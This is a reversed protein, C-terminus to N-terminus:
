HTVTFFRICVLSYVFTRLKFRWNAISSKVQQCLYKDFGVKKRVEDDGCEVLFGTVFAQNTDDSMGCSLM